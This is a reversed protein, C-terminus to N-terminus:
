YGGLKIKNYRSSNVKISQSNNMKQEEILSKNLWQTGLSNNKNFLAKAVNYHYSPMIFGNPNTVLFENYLDVFPAEFYRLNTITKIPKFAQLQETKCTEARFLGVPSIKNPNTENFVHSKPTGLKWKNGVQTILPTNKDIFIYWPIQNKLQALVEAKTGEYFPKLIVINHSFAKVQPKKCVRHQTPLAYEDIFGLLHSIEHIFVNIDDSSDLYMIGNNVNAGGKNLMVGLYRSNIEPTFKSWITEDCTIPANEDYRCNLQKVSIHQPQNFCVYAGIKHQKIEKILDTLQYLNAINTAFLQISNQCHQDATLLQQNVQQQPSTLLKSAFIKYKKIDEILVSQKLNKLLPLLENFLVKDGLTIALDILKNLEQPQHKLQYLLPKAELLKNEAIYLDILVYSSKKHGLKAAKKYWFVAQEIDDEIHYITALEFAITRDTHALKKALYFWENSQQNFEKPQKSPKVQNIKNIDSLQFFRYYIASKINAKIAYAIEEENIDNLTIKKEIYKALFFSDSPIAVMLSVLLLNSIFFPKM